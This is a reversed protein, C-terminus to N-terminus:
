KPKKNKKKQKKGKNIWKNLIKKTKTQQPQITSINFSITIFIRKEKKKKNHLFSHVLQMYYNKYLIVYFGFMLVM